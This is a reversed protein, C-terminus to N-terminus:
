KITIIMLAGPRLFPILDDFCRALEDPFQNMDCVCLDFPANKRLEDLVHPASSLGKLWVVNEMLEDSLTLPAPDISYVKMGREVLCQTWGGPSAGVDIAKINDGLLKPVQFRLLAEYLKYYARSIKEDVWREPPKMYVDAAEVVAWALFKEEGIMLEVVSVVHTYNTPAFIPSKQNMWSCTDEVQIVFEQELKRPVCMLRFVRDEGDLLGRKFMEMPWNVQWPVVADAPYYRDVKKGLMVDAFISERLVRSRDAPDRCRFACLQPAEFVPLVGHQEALYLLQRNADGFNATCFVLCDAARAEFPERVAVEDRVDQEPDFADAASRAKPPRSRSGEMRIVISRFSFSAIQCM